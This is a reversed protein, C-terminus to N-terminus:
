PPQFRQTSSPFGTSDPGTVGGRALKVGRTARLQPKGGLLEGQPQALGVQLQDVGAVGALVCTGPASARAAAVDGAGDVQRALQEEGGLAAKEGEVFEAAPDLLGPDGGVAGGHSVAVAADGGGDDEEVQSAKAVGVKGVVIAGPILPPWPAVQRRHIEFMRFDLGPRSM